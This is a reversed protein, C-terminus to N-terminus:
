TPETEQVAVAGYRVGCAHCILQVRDPEPKHLSVNHSLCRFCLMKSSEVPILDEVILQGTNLKRVLRKPEGPNEIVSTHVVVANPDFPKM